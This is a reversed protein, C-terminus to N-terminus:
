PGRAEPGHDKWEKGEGQKRGREGGEEMQLLTLLARHTDSGGRRHEVGPLLPSFYLMNNTIIGGQQKNKKCHNGRGRESKVAVKEQCKNQLLKVQGGM